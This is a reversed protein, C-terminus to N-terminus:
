RERCPRISLGDLQWFYDLPMIWGAGSAGPDKRLELYYGQNNSAAGATWSYGYNGMQYCSGATGDANLRWERYGSLPFAIYSDKNSDLYMLYVYPETIAPEGGCPYDYTILTGNWNKPDESLQGIDNGTTTFGTFTTVPPVKFGPPCPDYVSKVNERAPVTVPDIANPDYKNVVPRASYSADWLNTYMSFNVPKYNWEGNDLEGWEDPTAHFIIPNQIRQKLADIGNGFESASPFGFHQTGNSDFWSENYSTVFPQFPDKRGWQYYTNTGHWYRVFPAQKVTIEKTLTRGDDTTASFQVRSERSSYILLKEVSTWGLNIYMVDYSTGSANTVGLTETIFKDLNPRFFPTVWIHWSWMMKGTAGPLELGIVANGQKIDASTVEFLIGGHGGFATLDVSINSNRILNAHDQWVIKASNATLSAKQSACDTLIYPSSIDDGNYNVFNKLAGYSTDANPNYATVNPSGNVCGNGYVLPLIYWGPRDVIYCNATTGITTKGVSNTSLNYPNSQTGLTGATLLEADLDIEHDVPSAQVTVKVSEPEIAGDNVTVFDYWNPKEDIFTGPNSPDEYKVKWVVGKKTGDSGTDFSTINFNQEGGQPPFAPLQSVQLQQWWRENSVRYRVIKGAPWHKGSIYGFMTEDNGWKGDIKRSLTIEVRTSDPLVQPYMLFSHSEDTILDLPEVEKGDPNEADVFNLTFDRKGDWDYYSNNLNADPTSSSDKDGMNDRFRMDGVYKANKISISKIRSSEMDEAMVFQICSLAHKFNLKVPLRSGTCDIEESYAVILDQHKSADADVEIHIYPGSSQDVNAMMYPGSNTPTYPAFALFRVKGSEPWYRRADFDYGSGMSGSVGEFYLFNPRISALDTSWEDTYYYASVNFKDYMGGNKSVMNSRTLPNANADSVEWDLIESHLYMSDASSSIGMPVVEVRNAEPSIGSRTSASWSDSVSAAFRIENSENSSSPLLDDTCGCALVLSAGAFM